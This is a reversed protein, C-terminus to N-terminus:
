AVDKEIKFTPAESKYDFLGEDDLECIAHIKAELEDLNARFDGPKRALLTRLTIFACIQCDFAPKAKSGIGSYNHLKCTEVVLPQKSYATHLAEQRNM